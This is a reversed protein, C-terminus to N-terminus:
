KIIAIQTYHFTFTQTWLQVKTRLILYICSSRSELIDTPDSIVQKFGCQSVLSHLKKGEYTMKDGSCWNQNQNVINDLLFIFNTLLAHFEESSQSPSRCFLAINSQKGHVSLNYNLFEKLCSVNNGKFPIFNKHCICINCWQIWSNDVRTLKYKPIQFNTMTVIWTKSLCLINYTHM